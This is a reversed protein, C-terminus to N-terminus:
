RRGYEHHDKERLLKMMTDSLLAAKEYQNTEICDMVARHFGIIEKDILETGNITVPIFDIVKDIRENMEHLKKHLLEISKDTMLEESKIKEESM